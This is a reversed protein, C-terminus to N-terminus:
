DDKNWKEDARDMEETRAKARAIATSAEEQTEYPGMRVDNPCGLVPEVASHRLCWYWQESM